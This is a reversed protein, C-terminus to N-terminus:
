HLLSPVVPEPHAETVATCLHEQGNTYLWDAGQYRQYKEVLLTDQEILLYEQLSPIQLYSQLKKGRDFAATTDSLIEIVVIPNLIISHGRGRVRNGRLNSSVDPYFFRPTNPVRIKLDSPYVRCPRGRLQINISTIVNGAILNHRESGGAMTYIM